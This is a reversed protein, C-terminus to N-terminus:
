SLHMKMQIYEKNMNFMLCEFSRSAVFEKLTDIKYSLTSYTKYVKKFHMGFTYNMYTKDNSKLVQALFGNFNRWSIWKKAYGM